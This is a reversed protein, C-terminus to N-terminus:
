EARRGNCVAAAIGALRGSLWVVCFVALGSMAGFAASGQADVDRCSALVVGAVTAVLGLCASWGMSRKAWVVIALIMLSVGLILGVDALKVLIEM